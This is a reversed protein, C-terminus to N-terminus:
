FTTVWHRLRPIVRRSFSCNSFCFHSDAAFAFFAHRLSIRHRGRSVTLNADVHTLVGALEVTNLLSAFTSTSSAPQTTVDLVTKSFYSPRLVENIVHVIGNDAELNATRVKAVGDLLIEVNSDNSVRTLQVTEGSDMTITEGMEGDTTSIRVTGWASHHLLLHKLHSGWADDYLLKALYSETLGDFAVDTPAFVSFLFSLVFLFILSHIRLSLRMQMPIDVYTQSGSMSWTGVLDAAVVALQLMNLQQVAFVQVLSNQVPPPTPPVTTVVLAATPAVTQQVVLSSPQLTAAQVPAPVLVLSPAATKAASVVPTLSPTSTQQIVMEVPSAIAGDGNEEANSVNDDGCPFCLSDPLSSDSPTSNDNFVIKVPCSTGQFAGTTNVLITPWLVFHRRWSCLNQRFAVANEFALSMDVVGSVNWSSLDQNFSSAGQFMGRINTVRSLDNYVQWDAIPANFWVAHPNRTASFLYSFDQVKGTDIRWFDIEGYTRRIDARNNNSETWAEENANGDPIDMYMDLAQLLQERSTFQRFLAFPEEYDDTSNDDALTPLRFGGSGTTNTTGNVISSGASKIESSDESNDDKKDLVALAVGGVAAMFGVFAVVLFVCRKHRILWPKKGTSGGGSSGSTNSPHDASHSTDTTIDQPNPKVSSEWQDVIHAANPENGGRGRRPSSSSGRLYYSTDYTAVSSVTGGGDRSHVSSGGQIGHEMASSSDYGADSEAAAIGARIFDYDLTCTSADYTGVDYTGADYDMTSAVSYSIEDDDDDDDEKEHVRLQMIPRDHNFTMVSEEEDHCSSQHITSSTLYAAATTTTTTATAASTQLIDVLTDV